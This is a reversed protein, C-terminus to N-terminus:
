NQLKEGKFNNRKKHKLAVNIETFRTVSVPLQLGMFM